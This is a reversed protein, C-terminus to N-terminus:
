VDSNRDAAILEDVRRARLPTTRTSRRLACYQALRKM